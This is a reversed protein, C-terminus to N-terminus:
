KFVGSIWGANMGCNRYWCGEDFTAELHKEVFSLRVECQGKKYVYAEKEFVAVGKM